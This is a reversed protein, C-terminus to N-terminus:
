QDLDRTLPPRQLPLPQHSTFVVSGGAAIHQDLCHGLREIATHDLAVLPEDLLWLSAQTWQLRALAIRRKQGQSLQRVLRDALHALDEKALLADIQGSALVQQALAAQYKINEIVTASEQLANSHGLYLSATAFDSGASRLAEGNWRVSGEDAQTLGAMLRLLTTKGSGNAGRLHLCEGAQVQLSLDQLLPRGGKACFIHDLTLM